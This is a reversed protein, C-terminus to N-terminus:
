MYVLAIVNEIRQTETQGVEVEINSFEKQTNLIQQVLHGQGHTADTELSNEIKRINTNHDIMPDEIIILNDAEDDLESNPQFNEVNIIPNLTKDSNEEAQLVIELNRDRQRPAGPRASAPRVSPPRLSTRPRIRALGKQDKNEHNNVINKDLPMEIPEFIPEPFNEPVTETVAEPVSETVTDVVTDKITETSKKIKKEKSKRKSKASLSPQVESITSSRMAESDSVPNDLNESQNTKEPITKGASRKSILPQNDIVKELGTDEVPLISINSDTTTKKPIEPDDIQLNSDEIQDKIKIQPEDQIQNEDKIEKQVQIQQEVPIQEEVKPNNQPLSNNTPESVEVTKEVIPPKESIKKSPTPRLKEVKTRGVNKEKIKNESSDTRKISKVSPKVQDESAKPKKRDQNSAVQKIEKIQPALKAVSKPLAESKKAATTGSTTLTKVADKSSLKMDIAKGIAQLLENTREPEQGAVIKSPKVRLNEKTIM